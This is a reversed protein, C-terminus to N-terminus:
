ATVTKNSNMVVSTTATTGTAGTWSSFLYEGAPTATISVTAGETYQGTTPAVTGGATPNASTTLTYKIVPAPEEEASSSCSVVFLVSLLLLLQKM